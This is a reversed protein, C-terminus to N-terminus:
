GSVEETAGHGRLSEEGSSLIRSELDGDFGAQSLGRPSCPLTRFPRGASDAHLLGSARSSAYVAWAVQEADTFWLVRSFQTELSQKPSRPGLGTPTLYVVDFGRTPRGNLQRDSSSRHSKDVAVVAPTNGVPQPLPHLRQQRWRRRVTPSDGGWPAWRHRSSRSGAPAACRSATSRGRGSRSRSTTRPAGASEPTSWPRGHEVLEPALPQELVVLHHPDVPVPQRGVPSPLPAARRVWSRVCDWRCLSFPRLPRNERLPRADGDPEVVITGVAV